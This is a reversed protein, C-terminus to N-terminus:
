LTFCAGPRNRRKRKDRRDVAAGDWHKLVNGGGAPLKKLEASRMPQSGHAGAADVLEHNQLDHGAAPHNDVAVQDKRQYAAASAEPLHVFETLHM